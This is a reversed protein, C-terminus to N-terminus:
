FFSICPTLTVIPICIRHQFSCINILSLLSSLFFFFSSLCVMNMLQLIWNIYYIYYLHWNEWISGSWTIRAEWTILSTSLYLSFSSAVLIHIDCGQLHCTYWSEMAARIFYCLSLRKFYCFTYNWWKPPWFGFILTNAPGGEKRFARSSFRKGQEKWSNSALPWRCKKAWPDRRANDFGAVNCRGTGKTQLHM